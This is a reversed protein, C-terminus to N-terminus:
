RGRMARAAGKMSPMPGRPLPVRPRVADLAKLRAKVDTLQSPALKKPLKVLYKNLDALPVQGDEDGMAVTLVPVGYAIQEHKKVEASVLAKVRGPQGESILVIGPPGVVRHVVDLQRTATLAATYAWKKKDLMGLAVEASGPQGAYRVFTAKKARELLIYLDATIGATIGLLLWMWWPQFIIGIVTFLVVAGVFAAIVYLNLKPDVDATVKYTQWLQRYWPWDAPNNSNKKALKAAKLEAKQKAALEKAKESAM